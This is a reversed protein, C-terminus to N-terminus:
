GEILTSGIIEYTDNKFLIIKFNRDLNKNEFSPFHFIYNYRYESVQKGDRVYAWYLINERNPIADKKFIGVWDNEQKFLGYKNIILVNKEYEGRFRGHGLNTTVSLTATPGDEQYSNLAFYVLDYEGSSLGKEHLCTMDIWQDDKKCVVM